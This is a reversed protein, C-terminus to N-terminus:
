EVEKVFYSFSIANHSADFVARGSKILIAQPSQHIVGFKESVFNSLDRYAILDLFYPIFVDKEYSKEFSQLVWSSISCRISHKFILVPKHNSQEVIESVQDVSTLPIWNVSENTRNKNGLLSFM